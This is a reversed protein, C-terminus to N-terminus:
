LVSDLANITCIAKACFSFHKIIVGETVPAKDALANAVTVRTTSRMGVM